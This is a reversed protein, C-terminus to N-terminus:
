RALEVAAISPLTFYFTSGEGEKSQVWIRGHHAEVIGKAIALGLGLGRKDGRKAQWYHGFIHPLNETAIGPGTDSIAVRVERGDLEASVSIRGAEPTFKIANGILNSILQQVRAPDALVAPLDPPIDSELAIHRASALPRLIELADRVIGPLSEPRPDVALRGSEIRRLDLLDQILENMRRVSRAIVDIQRREVNRTGDVIDSLLQAGMSITNLPNRLDHAVVALMEDRASTAQRAEHFLRANEIALSARRALEEALALDDETYRRDSNSICLILVGIVRGSAALPVSMLSRPALENAINRHDPDLVVQEVMGAAVEPVLISRGERLARFGPHQDSVRKAFNGAQQLLPEKEPDVHAAGIRVFSGDGELVDVVCFDALSTICLRALTAVTTQYDFSMGLVRSAEALFRARQEAQEAVARATHQQLHLFRTELLNRIRLLTETADIPKTLFDRAGRSLARQRAEPTVDATLVLVPIYEGAPTEASIRDLVAFGDIHPMHLDLLVLDPHADRFLPLADRADRTSTIRTYGDDLLLGELLDVNAEEDDVILIMAEHLLQPRIV